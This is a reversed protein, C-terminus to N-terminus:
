NNPVTHTKVSILFSIVLLSFSIIANHYIKIQGPLPWNTWTAFNVDTVSLEACRSNINRFVNENFIPLDHCNPVM